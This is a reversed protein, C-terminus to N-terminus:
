DPLSGVPAVPHTHNRTFRDIQKAHTAPVRPTSWVSQTAPCRRCRIEGWRHGKHVETVVLGGLEARRLAAAIDKNQHRGSSVM